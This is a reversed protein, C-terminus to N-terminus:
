CGGPAPAVAEPDVTAPDIGPPVLAARITYTTQATIGDGPAARLTYNGPIIGAPDSWTGRAMGAGEEIAGAPGRSGPGDLTLRLTSATPEWRLVAVLAAYGDPVTFRGGEVCNNISTSGNGTRAELFYAGSVAAAPVVEPTPAPSATPSPEVEDPSSTCGALAVVLAFVMLRQM